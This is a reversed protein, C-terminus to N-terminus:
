MDNSDTNAKLTRSKGKGEMKNEEANMDNGIKVRTEKTEKRDDRVGNQELKGGWGARAHGEWGTVRKTTAHITTLQPASVRWVM